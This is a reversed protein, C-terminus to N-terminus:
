LRDETVIDELLGRGESPELVVEVEWGVAVRRGTGGILSWLAPSHSGM